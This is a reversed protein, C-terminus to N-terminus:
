SGMTENLSGSRFGQLDLAVYAFGIRRLESVIKERTDAELVRSMASVPIELRAVQDHYRVRLEHFGLDRLFREAASVRSLREETIHTGYPFRSSLCPSAPRDWTPLGLARSATRIDSKTLGAEILLHRVGQEAAAKLGPRHDGLDDVNAGDLVVALTRRAAEAACITFLNDKCLYCRDVPNQAYGPITLENADVLLHEVGIATALRKAEEVDDQPTTPSVTTLAICRAGLVDHAVRVLFTSDVGGSFAVLASPCEGLLARLRDLRTDLDTM